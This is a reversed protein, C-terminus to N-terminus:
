GLPDTWILAHDDADYLVLGLDDFVNYWVTDALNGLFDEEQEQANEDCEGGTGATADISLAQGGLDNGFPDDAYFDGEVAWTGSLDNCGTSGSLTGDAGFELTVTTYDWVNTFGWEVSTLETVNWSTGGLTPPDEVVERGGFAAETTDPVATTDPAATAETTAGTDAAGITDDTDGDGGGCAALALAVVLIITGRRM